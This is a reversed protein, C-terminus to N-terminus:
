AVSYKPCLFLEFPPLENLPQSTHPELRKTGMRADWYFREKPHLHKRVIYGRKFQNNKQDKLLEVDDPRFCPM